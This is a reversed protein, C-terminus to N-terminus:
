KRISFLNKKKESLFENEFVTHKEDFPAAICLVWNTWWIEGWVIFLRKKRDKTKGLM